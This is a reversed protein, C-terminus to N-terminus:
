NVGSISLILRENSFATAGGNEKIPSIIFKVHFNLTNKEKLSVAAFDIRVSSLFGVLDLELEVLKFLLQRM